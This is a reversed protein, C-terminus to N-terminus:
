RALQEGGGGHMWWLLPQVWRWWCWVKKVIEEVVAVLLGQWRAAEEVAEAKCDGRCDRKGSCMTAPLSQRRRVIVMEVWSRGWKTVVAWM